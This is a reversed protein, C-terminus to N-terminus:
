IIWPRTFSTKIFAVKRGRTTKHPDGFGFGTMTSGPPCTSLDRWRGTWIDVPSRNIADDAQAIHPQIEQVFTLYAQEHGADSTDCTMRIYRWALDESVASELESVDHLYKRFDKLDHVSREQLDRYFAELDSWSAVRLASPLYSREAM